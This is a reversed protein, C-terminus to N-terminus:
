INKKEKLIKYFIDMNEKKKFEITYDKNIIITLNKIELDEIDNFKYTKKDEELNISFSNPIQMIEDKCVGKYTGKSYIINECEKKEFHEKIENLNSSDHINLVIVIVAITGFLILFIM